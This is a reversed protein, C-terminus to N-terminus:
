EMVVPTTILLPFTSVSPFPPFVVCLRPSSVATPLGLLSAASPGLEASAEIEFKWDGSGHSFLNRNKLGGLRRFTTM